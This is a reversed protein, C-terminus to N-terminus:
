KGTKKINGSDDITITSSIKSSLKQLIKIASNTKDYEPIGPKKQKVPIIKGSNFKGSTDLEIDLICTIATEGSLNFNGYTLFNGLSYAILRDKYVEMGRLVHPGSGLVLDAGADIAKHAFAVVNGRDEGLFIEKKDHVETARRGEAGGHFYVLILDYKQKLRRIEEGVGATDAINRSEPEFGFALLAIRNSFFNLEVVERQPLARIQYCELLKQTFLYGIKGYDRCHNNDLSLVNFGLKKITLGLYDPIGFDYCVGAKISSDSCKTPKMSTNVFSGELNGILIDAGSLYNGISEIFIRGSDPPIIKKPTYSGPMIDGVAKIHIQSQSKFTYSLFILLLISGIKKQNNTLM